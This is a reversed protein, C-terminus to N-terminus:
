RAYFQAKLRGISTAESPVLNELVVTAGDYLIVVLDIPMGDNLNGTLHNEVGFEQSGEISLQHGTVTLVSRGRLVIRGQYNGGSITLKSNKFAEICIPSANSSTGGVFNGGEVAVEAEEDTCLARGGAATGTSAGGTFSGGSVILSGGTSSLADGGTSPGQGGTFTGGSITGSGGAYKLAVGGKGSAGKGGEVVGGSMELSGLVYIGFSGHRLTGGGVFSGGLIRCLYAPSGGVFFLASSTYTSTSYAARIEAGEHIEVQCYTSRLGGAGVEGETGQLLGGRVLITSGSAGVVATGNLLPQVEAGAVIELTTGSQVFVQEPANGDLLHSGGDGYIVACATRSQAVLCLGVVILIIPLLLTPAVAALRRRFM